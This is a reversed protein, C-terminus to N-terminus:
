YGTVQSRGDSAAGSRRARAAMRIQFEEDDVFDEEEVRDMYRDFGIALLSTSDFQDDLKAESVGTFKLLETEYGPYWEAEKDFRMGGARSRKQLTRGRTAKDKVSPVEVINMWVDRERMENYVIHRIAQWIVGDEVWFFEPNWRAQISFMEEIWGAKTGDPLTEVSAWRGVRQDVIHLLNQTCKGGVTFSTRNAMDTKSVAFDAAAGIVKPREREQESMPLFDQKRLYADADDQPDNLFEQSYGASDGDEIFEQRRARLRKEPWAETWLIDSFDDFARHAKYFLPKWAKSKMLRALLSDEHLITGHVRFRGGRGLAQRAARFVWRRFKARREKNEVQEDDELDDCVMLNPRKGKWMRGRIKQESGRALVRFRHGDDCSAIIDTSSDKELGVIGFEERLDDNELLEERINSLQEAALEETSSILIVYDSARFVVEALIYAFTLATSKAHERPAALAVLPEDSTYLAWGARHFEPTPVPQDYRPSLFAGAFAEIIDATLKVSPQM